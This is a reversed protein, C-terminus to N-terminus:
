RQLCITWFIDAWHMAPAYCDKQESAEVESSPLEVSVQM